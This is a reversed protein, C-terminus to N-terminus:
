AHGMMRGLSELGALYMGLSAAAGVAIGLIWLLRLGIGMENVPRQRTPFPMAISRSRGAVEHEVYPEIQSGLPFLGAHHKSQAVIRAAETRKYVGLTRMAGRVRQDVTHRSIGLREAIEKSTMHENVLLLCDAQGESLSQVSHELSSPM